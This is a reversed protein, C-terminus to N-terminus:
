RAPALSFRFANGQRNTVTVTVDRPREGAFTATCMFSSGVAVVLVKRSGCDVRATHHTQQAIEKSLLAVTPGVAVIPESPTPTFENGTGTVTGDIQVPQGELTTSCQFTQGPRSPISAPCTVDPAPISYATAIQSAIEGSVSKSDLTHHPSVGCGAALLACGFLGGCVFWVRAGIRTRRNVRRYYGQAGARGM